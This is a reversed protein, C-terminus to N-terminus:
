STDHFMSVARSQFTSTRVFGFLTTKKKKKSTQVDAEWDQATSNNWTVGHFESSLGKPRGTRPKCSMLKLPSQKVLKKHLNSM